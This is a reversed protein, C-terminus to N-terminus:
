LSTPIEQPPPNIVLDFLFLLTRKSFNRLLCTNDTACFYTYLSFKSSIPSKSLTDHGSNCPCLSKYDGTWIGNVRKM